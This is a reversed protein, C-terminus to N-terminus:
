AEVGNDLKFDVFNKLCMEFDDIIISIEAATSNAGLNYFKAFEAIEIKQEECLEKLKKKKILATEDLVTKPQTTNRQLAPASVGDDDDQALGIIASLAYRRAYSIGSGLEQMNNMSKKGDRGVSAEFNLVFTSKLWQGSSHMLLTHLVQHGDQTSVIQSVSLENTTMPERIIDLCSALDAYKYNYGSKDKKVNELSEQAKSLALALKSIDESMIQMVCEM